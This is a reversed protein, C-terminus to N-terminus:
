KPQRPSAQDDDDDGDEGGEGKEVDDLYANKVLKKLKELESALDAQGNLLATINGQIEETVKNAASAAQAMKAM